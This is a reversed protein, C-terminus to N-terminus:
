TASSVVQLRHHVPLNAYSVSTFDFHKFVNLLFRADLKKVVIRDDVYNASQQRM